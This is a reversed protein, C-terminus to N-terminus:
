RDFLDSQLYANLAKTYRYHRSARDLWDLYFRAVGGAAALEEEDLQHTHYGSEAFPLPHGAPSIVQIDIRSWGTNGRYDHDVRVRCDVDGWRLREEHHRRPPM